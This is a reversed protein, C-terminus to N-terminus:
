IYTKISQRTKHNLQVLMNVIRLTRLGIFMKLEYLENVDSYIIYTRANQCTVNIFSYSHVGDM